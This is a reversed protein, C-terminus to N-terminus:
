APPAGPGMSNRALGVLSSAVATAEVSSSLSLCPPLFSLEAKSLLGGPINDPINRIEGMVMGSNEIRNQEKTQAFVPVALGAIFFVGVFGTFMAGPRPLATCISQLLKRLVSASRYARISRFRFPQTM